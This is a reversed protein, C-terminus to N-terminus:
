DLDGILFASVEEGASVSTREEPLVAIANASKLWSSYQAESPKAIEASYNEEGERRFVRLRVYHTLGPKGNYSNLLKARIRPPDLSTSGSLKLIAPRGFVYFSVIASTPFGPLLVVPKEKYVALGTPSSPRMAVGHVILKLGKISSVADSVYDRRGVSSGASLFLADYKLGRLIKKKIQDFNDRAIGLDVPKCGLESIQSALFPRNSDFIKPSEKSSTKTKALEELEDGTSFFAITPRRFVKVRSIGLMSFLAVHQSSIKTGRSILTEGEAIDEGEKLINEGVIARKTIDIEDDSVKAYEVMAVANAGRPLYSGTAVRAAEGEKLELKPIVGIRVEGVLKFTTIENASVCLAYGDRTSRAIRPLNTPSKVDESAIRSLSEMTGVTKKGTVRITGLFMKLADGVSLHEEAKDAGHYHTHDEESAIASEAHDGNREIM